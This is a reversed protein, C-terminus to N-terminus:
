LTGRCGSKNLALQVDLASINFLKSMDDVEDFACDISYIKIKFVYDTSSKTSNGKREKEEVSYNEFHDRLADSILEDIPRAINCRIIILCRLQFNEIFNKIATKVNVISDVTRFFFDSKKQEYIPSNCGFSIMPVSRARGYQFGQSCVEDCDNLIVGHYKSTLDFGPKYLDMKIGSFLMDVFNLAISQSECYGMRRRLFVTYNKIYKGIGTQSSNENFMKNLFDKPDIFKFPQNVMFYDGHIYGLNLRPKHRCDPTEPVNLDVFYPCSTQANLLRSSAMYYLLVLQRTYLCLINHKMFKIFTYHRKQRRM